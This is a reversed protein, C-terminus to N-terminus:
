EQYIDLIDTAHREVHFIVLLDIIEHLSRDNMAVEDIKKEL